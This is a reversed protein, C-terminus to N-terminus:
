DDSSDEEDDNDDCDVLFDDVDDFSFPESASTAERCSNV